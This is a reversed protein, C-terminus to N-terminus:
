EVVDGIRPRLAQQDVIERCASWIRRCEIVIEKICLDSVRLRFEQPLLGMVRAKGAILITRALVQMGQEDIRIEIIKSVRRVEVYLAARGCYTSSFYEVFVEDAAHIEEAIRADLIARDIDARELFLTM